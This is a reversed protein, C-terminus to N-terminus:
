TPRSAQAMAISHLGEVRCRVIAHFAEKVRRELPNLEEKLSDCVEKLEEAGKKVETYTIGSLPFPTTDLLQNLSRARIELTYIEKLLGCCNKREKKKSEQLIRERLALLPASWLFTSSLYFNTQLGRDQCPIAAVLAWMLFYLVYSMTYVITALGGSSTVESSRPTSLSNGFSQLQKVASWNQSVSWSLSRFQRTHTGQQDTQTNRTRGFSRNKRSVSSSSSSSGNNDLMCIALDVLARKARRFHSEMYIINDMASMVIELLRLWQRIREIGERIVNCVDLGKVCREYYASVFREMPPRNLFEQNNQLISRFENQCSLFVGILKHIWPITLLEDPSTAQLSSFQEAVHRQFTEHASVM